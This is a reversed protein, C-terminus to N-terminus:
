QTKLLGASAFIEKVKANEEALLVEFDEHGLPAVTFGKTKALKLFEPSNAAKAMADALKSKVDDPTNPAVSLGRFLDFSVDYGAEKATPVDPFVTSREATPMLLIKLKGANTLNVAGTLPAIMADAEGNLVSKNRGKIGKPLHVVKCGAADMLQIAATHTASGTGSNAVKLTSPAAKCAAVFEAFNNWKADAKVVFPQPQFEVRGVHDMADYAFDTNGLNTTTLVSSSNWAVTHGDPKSNKIYTYTVAGGGGPRNVPTVPVGLVASMEKALLRGEIDAGGGAGFPIVFEIPGDPFALAPTAAAALGLAAAGVMVTRLKNM